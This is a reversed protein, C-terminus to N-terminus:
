HRWPRKSATSRAPLRPSRTLETPKDKKATLENQADEIRQSLTKMSGHRQTKRSTTAHEGNTASVDKRRVDAHEGFAMSLTEDSLNLSKALAVAAPNAPVSVLSCELLEQKLFRTGDFPRKEDIPQSKMPIFGVSVARLIDQDLLSLLEDIRQSTGRAAPVLTGKLKGGEVRLNSWSGIPFSSNHGFLAIPNKRFNSLVWGDVSVVDGMRDVTEDSLVFDYGERAAVAKRIMTM